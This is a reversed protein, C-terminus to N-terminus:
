SESFCPYKSTHVKFVVCGFSYIDSFTSVRREAEDLGLLEPAAYPIAGPSTMKLDFTGESDYM